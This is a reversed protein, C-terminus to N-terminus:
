VRSRNLDELGKCRALFVLARWAVAPGFLPALDSLVQIDISVAPFLIVLDSLVKIHLPPQPAHSPRDRASRPGPHTKKEDHPSRDGAIAGEDQEDQYDQGDQKLRFAHSPCARASRTGPPTKKTTRPGTGRSRERM